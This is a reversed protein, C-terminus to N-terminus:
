PLEIGWDEWIMEKFKESLNEPEVSLIEMESGYITKRIELCIKVKEMQIVEKLPRHFYKRVIRNHSKVYVYFRYAEPYAYFNTFCRFIAPFIEIDAEKELKHMLKLANRSICRRNHYKYYLELDRELDCFNYAKSFSKYRQLIESKERETFCASM